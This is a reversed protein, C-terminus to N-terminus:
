LRLWPIDPLGPLSPVGAEYDIYLWRKKDKKREAAAKAAEIATGLENEYGEEKKAEVHDDAENALRVEDREEEEQKAEDEALMDHVKDQLSSAKVASSSMLRVTHSELQRSLPSLM